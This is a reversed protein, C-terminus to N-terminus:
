LPEILGYIRPNGTRHSIVFNDLWVENKGKNWISFRVHLGGDKIRIDSLKASQYAKYWQLSDSCSIFREFSRAKWFVSKDGAKVNLVFLMDNLKTKSHFQIRADLFNNPNTLVTDLLLTYGPGWEMNPLMRYVSNSSDNMSVTMGKQRIGKWGYKNKTDFTMEAIVNIDDSTEQSFLYTDGGHYTNHWILKPFHDQIIPVIIASSSSLGGFYVQKYKSKKNKLFSIFAGEDNFQNYRVCHFDFGLKNKYYTNIEDDAHIIALTKTKEKGAKPNDTVIHKHANNYFIDYHKRKEILTFLGSAMIVIVLVGNIWKKQNKIHGFLVFFLFPFSFILVSYQIVANIYRSYLFGIVFPLLFWSAFLWFKYNSKFSVPGYFFAVIAILATISMLLPSFHFIYGLYKLIFDNDPKSLWGEIGGLSLQHLFIELHPLYLLIVLAGASIYKVLFKKRVMTLGTAWVIGAMLLSFHHNYACLASTLVLGAMNKWFNVNPHKIILTWFWVMALTFFMGSIYPRAIQSYMVPYQLTAMFAAALLGVTENYWKRGILFVLWVALVGFVLFPLKVIWETEGFLQTWYYLFVQIGAPHGDNRVGENILESLSNFHTRFLASFEDHTFPIETIQYFRTAVAVLLVLLLTIKNSYFKM